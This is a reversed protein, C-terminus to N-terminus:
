QLLLEGQLSEAKRKLPRYISEALTVIAGYDARNRAVAAFYEIAEFATSKAAASADAAAKLKARHM